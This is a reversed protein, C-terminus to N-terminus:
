DPLHITGDAERHRELEAELRAAVESALEPENRKVWGVALEIVLRCLREDGAPGPAGPRPAWTVPLGAEVARFRAAAQVLTLRGALLDMTARFKGDDRLLFIQRRRELEEDTPPGEDRLDHITSPADGDLEPGPVLGAGLYFLGAAGGILVTAVSWPRLHRVM